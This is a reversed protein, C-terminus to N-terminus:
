FQELSERKAAYNKRLIEIARVGDPIVTGYKEEVARELMTCAEVLSVIKHATHQNTLICGMCLPLQCDSCFAEVRRVSM